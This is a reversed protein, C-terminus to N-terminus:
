NTTIYGRTRLDDVSSQVQDPNAAPNTEAAVQQDWCQQSGTTRQIATGGVGTNGAEAVVVGAPVEAIYQRRDEIDNRWIKVVAGQGGSTLNWKAPDQPDHHTISPPTCETSSPTQPASPATEALPAGSTIRIYGRNVLDQVNSQVEDPNEAANTEARVQSDWCAQNPDRRTIVTGGATTPGAEVVITGATVVANHERRDPQNPHWLKIVADSGSTLNWTSPDNPEHHTIQPPICERGGGTAPAPQGAPAAPAAPAAPVVFEPKPEPAPGLLRLLWEESRLCVNYGPTVLYIKDNDVHEQVGDGNTDEFRGRQTFSLEPVFTVCDDAKAERPGAVAFQPALLMAGGLVARIAAKSVKKLTTERERLM